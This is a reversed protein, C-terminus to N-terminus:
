HGAVDQIKNWAVRFKSADGPTLLFSLCHQPMILSVFKTLPEFLYIGIVNIFSLLLFHILCSNKTEREVKNSVVWWM